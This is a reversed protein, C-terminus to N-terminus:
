AYYNNNAIIERVFWHKGTKSYKSMSNARSYAEKETFRKASQLYPTYTVKGKITNGVYTIENGIQTYIVYDVHITSEKKEFIYYMDNLYRKNNYTLGNEKIYEDAENETPFTYINYANIYNIKNGSVSVGLIKGGANTYNIIQQAGQHYRKMTIVDIIDASNNDYSNYVVLMVM